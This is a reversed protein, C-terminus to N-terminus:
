NTEKQQKLSIFIDPVQLRNGGNPSGRAKRGTVREIIINSHVHPYLYRTSGRSEITKPIYGSTFASSRITIRHKVKQLVAM